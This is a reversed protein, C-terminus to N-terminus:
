RQKPSVMGGGGAYRAEEGCQVPLIAFSGIVTPSTGGVEQACLSLVSEGMTKWGFRIYFTFTPLPWAWSLTTPVTEVSEYDRRQWRDTADIHDPTCISQVAKWKFQKNEM